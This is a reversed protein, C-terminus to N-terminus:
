STFPVQVGFSNFMSPVCLLARKEDSRAWCPL